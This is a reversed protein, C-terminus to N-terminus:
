SRRVTIERVATYNVGPMKRIDREEGMLELVATKNVAKNLLEWSENMVIHELVKDWDAVRVSEKKAYYVTGHESRINEVGVERLKADLWQARKEQVKELEAMREEMERKIDSITDRTKIYAEVVKDVTVNSM